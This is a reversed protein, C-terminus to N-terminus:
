GEKTEAIGSNNSDVPPNNEPKNVWADLKVEEGFGAAQNTPTPSSIPKMARNTDGLERQIDQLGSERALRNPLTRMEQSARQVARWADSTMVKRLFEGITRSVKVMERPGIIILALVVIVLIEPVGVGLFDM